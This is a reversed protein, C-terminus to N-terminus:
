KGGVGGSMRTRMRRNPINLNGKWASRLAPAKNDGVTNTGCKATSDPNVRDERSLEAAARPCRHFVVSLRLMGEGKRETRRSHLPM